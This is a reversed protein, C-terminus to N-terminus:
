ECQYYFPFKSTNALQVTLVQKPNLILEIIRFVDVEQDYIYFLNNM